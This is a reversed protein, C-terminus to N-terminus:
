GDHGLRLLPRLHCLLHRPLLLALWFFYLPRRVPAWLSGLRLFMLLFPSFQCPWKMLDLFYLGCPVYLATDVFVLLLPVYLFDNLIFSAVSRLSINRDLFFPSLRRPTLTLRLSHHPSIHPYLTPKRIIDKM